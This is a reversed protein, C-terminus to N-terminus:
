RSWSCRWCSCRPVWNVSAVRSFRGAPLDSLLDPAGGGDRLAALGCGSVFFAVFGILRLTPELTSRDASRWQRLVGISLVVLLIPFAYAINGILYLLLDALYAGITGGFNHLTTTEATHSWGPDSPSHSILCIFLYLALPLLLLVAAERLIRRTRENSESGTAALAKARAV